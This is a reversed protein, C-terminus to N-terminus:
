QDFLENLYTVYAETDSEEYAYLYDSVVPEDLGPPFPPMYHTLSSIAFIIFSAALAYKRFWTVTVEDFSGSRVSDERVMKQIRHIHLDDRFRDTGKGYAAGLDPIEMIARYDQYLDPYLALEAELREIQSAALLGDAADVIDRELEERKRDDSMHNSTM